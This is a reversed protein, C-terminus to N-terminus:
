IGAERLRAGEREHAIEQFITDLERKDGKWKGAFKVPTTKQLELVIKLIIKTFSENDEKLNTLSEYAKDSISIVRTMLVMHMYAHM